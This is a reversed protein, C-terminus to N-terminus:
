ITVATYDGESLPAVQISFVIRGPGFEREFMMKVRNLAAVSGRENITTLMLLYQCHSYQCIIDSRRLTAVMIKKILKMASKIEEDTEDTPKTV